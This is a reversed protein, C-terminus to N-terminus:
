AQPSIEAAKTTAQSQPALQGPEADWDDFGLHHEAQSKTQESMCHANLDHLIIRNCSIVYM